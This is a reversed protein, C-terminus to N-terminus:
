DTGKANDEGEVYDYPMGEATWVQMVKWAFNDEVYKTSYGEEILNRIQKKKFTLAKGRTDFPGFARFWQGNGTFNNRRM